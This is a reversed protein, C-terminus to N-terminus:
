PDRRPVSSMRTSSTDHDEGAQRQHAQKQGTPTPPSVVPRLGRGSRLTVYFSASTFYTKAGAINKAMRAAAGAAHAWFTLTVGSPDCAPSSHVRSRAVIKSSGVPTRI